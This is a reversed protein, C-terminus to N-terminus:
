RGLPSRRSGRRRRMFSGRGPYQVLHSPDWRILLAPRRRRSRSRGALPRRRGRQESASPRDTEDVWACPAGRDPYGSGAHFGLPRRRRKSDRRPRRRGKEESEPAGVEVRRMFSGSRPIRTADFACQATTAAPRVGRRDAATRKRAGSPGVVPTAHEGWDSFASKGRKRESDLRCAELPILCNM